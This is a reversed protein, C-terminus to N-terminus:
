VEQYSSGCGPSEIVMVKSIRIHATNLRQSLMTFLYKSLTEATPNIHTFAPHDNLLTHDLSDLIEKLASKVEIFDIGMGLPNLQTCQIYAEIIWNHGHINACAGDHGKLIHAASFCEKIYVEYIGPM